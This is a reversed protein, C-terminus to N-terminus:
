HGDRDGRPDYKGAEIARQKYSKGDDPWIRFSHRGFKVVAWYYIEGVTPRWLRDIWGEATAKANHKIRARFAKDAMRRYSEPGWFMDDDGGKEYGAFYEWDHADCCPTLWKNDPSHSCGDCVFWDPVGLSQRTHPTLGYKNM